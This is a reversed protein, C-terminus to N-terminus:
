SWAGRAAACVAELNTRPVQEPDYTCGPGIIIPRRGAQAIAERVEDACQEPTGHVLTELNDVGACLAPKVRDRVAAISPGASRDAWNIVQVPYTAFAEFNLARGCVHLLNFRAASAAELITLDTPRVIEAYTGAGNAPTDVWDDRVSLFIGDAGAGLCLGVFRALSAAIIQLASAVAQRDEALFVSLTQSADDQEGTLSPPGPPKTRPTVLRRLTAWANFVTTAMFVRGALEKHLAELLELQRAFEPEDGRLAPLSALDQVTQIAGPTPYGNANMVKLFDLDFRRLHELHARVAEPGARQGPEFHHWFSAPPCDSRRGELVATVRQIKDSGSM